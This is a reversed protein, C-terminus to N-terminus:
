DDAEGNLNDDIERDHSDEAYRDLVEEAEEWTYGDDLLRHRMREMNM